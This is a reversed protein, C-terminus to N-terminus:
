PTPRPKEILIDGLDLTEGPKVTFEKRIQPGAPDQVTTRDIFRYTAGPILVPLAFRGDTDSAIPGAYNIPDIQALTGEDALPQAPDRQPAGRTLGPTAVMVIFYSGLAYQTLPKGASNVLRAKAAGCPELRVTLPNASSVKSSVNLTAGRKGKPDLFYVPVGADPALGHLAFRGDWVRGHVSGLWQRLLGNSVIVRSITWADQVPQGDVGIARGTVTGGRRLVVHVQQSVSGPKADCAEFAHASLRYGAQPVDDRLIRDDIEQLVYDDSPGMVVLHGPGPENVIQFSGDPKTWVPVSFNRSPSRRIRRPLFLLMAGVVPEGSGDETVRGRIVVGTALAVDISQEVAGKPWVVVKGTGLYPGEPPPSIRVSRNGVAVRMRFRGDTGTQSGVGSPINPTNTRVRAGAIPKGTEADTIQGILTLDPQLVMTLPRSDSTGGAKLATFGPRGRLPAIAGETEVFITQIAFRPGDITLRAWVARGLGSLTFRGDAGTVNRAPWADPVQELAGFSLTETIGDVLRYADDIRVEVGATPRGQLDFLRGHIVQERPLSVDGRPQDADPDLANWGVGYGVTLAAVGFLQYRSSSTRPTEIQYRGSADCHGQWLELDGMRNPFGDDLLAYRTRAYVSVAANPIPKGEPDLVRGTVFMRGSTPSDPRLQGLASQSQPEDSAALASGTAASGIAVIGLALLAPWVHRSQHTFM